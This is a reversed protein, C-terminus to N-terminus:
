ATLSCCPLATVLLKSIWCFARAAFLSWHLACILLVEVFSGGLILLTEGLHTLALDSFALPTVLPLESSDSQSGCVALFALNSVRLFCSSVGFFNLSSVGDCQSVTFLCLNNRVGEEWLAVSQGDVLSVEPLLDLDLPVAESPSQVLGDLLDAVSYINYM